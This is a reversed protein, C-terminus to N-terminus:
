GGPFLPVTRRAGAPAELELRPEAAPDAAGLAVLWTAADTTAAGACSLIRDGPVVGLRAGPLGPMVRTVRLQADLVLGLGQARQVGTKVLERGRWREVASWAELGEPFVSAWPEGGRLRACRAAWGPLHPTQRVLQDRLRSEASHHRAEEVRLERNVSAFQALLREYAEPDSARTPVLAEELSALEADTALRLARWDAQAELLGTLAAGRARPDLPADRLEALLRGHIGDLAADDLAATTEARTTAAAPAVARVAPAAAAETAASPRLGFTAGAGLAAGTILIALDNLAHM